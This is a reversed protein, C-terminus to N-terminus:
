NKDNENFYLGAPIKYVTGYPICLDAAHSENNPNDHDAFTRGEDFGYIIGGKTKAGYSSDTTEVLVYNSPIEGQELEEKSIEIITINSM